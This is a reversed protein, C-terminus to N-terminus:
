VVLKDTKRSGLCDLADWVVHLLKDNGENEQGQSGGKAYSGTGHLTLGGGSDASRASITRLNKSPVWDLISKHVWFDLLPGM